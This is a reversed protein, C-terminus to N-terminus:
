CVPKLSVVCLSVCVVDTSGKSEGTSHTAGDSSDCLYLPVGCPYPVCASGNSVSEFHRQCVCKYECLNFEFPGEPADCM